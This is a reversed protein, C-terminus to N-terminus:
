RGKGRRPKTKNQRAGSRGMPGRPRKPREPKPKATAQRVIQRATLEKPLEEVPAVEEEETRHPRKSLVEDGSKWLCPFDRDVAEVMVEGQRKLLCVFAGAGLNQHPYLRYSPFKSLPSRFENLHEVEVAEMDPHQKLFWDILRENEKNSFTCTAYLIHGGPMLCHIANGLIRRQRGVNKDVEHPFFSDVADVGKAMLSQGSCPVDCIILDFLGPFEKAYVSPDASWVKANKIKCRDLNAILAGCRKRIAENCYLLELQFARAAFVAKGGPSSCMDLVRVPERKIALMASASFISSFDLTYYAGKAYLPHQAARFEDSVREVFAPQWPLRRHRPFAKIEQRDDLVILAQERSEGAKMADLFEQREEENPFLNEAMKLLYENLEGSAM